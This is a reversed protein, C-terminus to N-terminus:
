SLRQPATCSELQQCHYAADCNVESQGARNNALTLSKKMHQKMAWSGVQVCIEMESHKRPLGVRVPPFHDESKLLSVGGGVLRM